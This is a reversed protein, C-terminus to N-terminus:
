RIRKGLGQMGALGRGEGRLVDLLVRGDGGGGHALALAGGHLHAIRANPIGLLGGRRLGRRRRRMEGLSHGLRTHGFVPEDVVLICCLAARVVIVFLLFGFVLLRSSALYLDFKDLIFRSTM